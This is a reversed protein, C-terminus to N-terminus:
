AGKECALAFDDYAKAWLEFQDLTLPGDNDGVRHQFFAGVTTTWADGYVDAFSKSNPLVAITSFRLDEVDGGKGIRRQEPPLVAQKRIARAQVRSVAAIHLADDRRSAANRNASFVSAMDPLDTPLPVNANGSAPARDFMPWLIALGVVAALLIKTDRDM